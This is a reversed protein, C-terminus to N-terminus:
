QHLLTTQKDTQRDTRWAVVSGIMLCDLLGLLDRNRYQFETIIIVRENCRPSFDCATNDRRKASAPIAALPRDSANSDHARRAHRAPLGDAVALCHALV